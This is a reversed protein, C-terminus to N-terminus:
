AVLIKRKRRPLEATPNTEPEAREGDRFPKFVFRRSEKESVVAQYVRGFKTELLDYDVSRRMSGRWTIRGVSPVFARAADKIQFKFWTELEEIERERDGVDAKLRALRAAKGIAERTELVVERDVVDRYLAAALEGGMADYTPAPPDNERVRRWFEREYQLLLTIIREDRRIEFAQFESGGFLVGFLAWRRRTVAMYHQVQLYYQDPIGNQDWEKKKTVFANKIEAIGDGREDVARVGRDPHAILYKWRPHKITRKFRYLQVRRMAALKKAIPGELARGWERAEALDDNLTDPVEGRKEYFLQLPSKFSSVGAIIGADSGGIGKRRAAILELQNM